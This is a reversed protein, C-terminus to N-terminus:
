DADDNSRDADKEGEKCQGQFADRRDPATSRVEKTTSISPDKQPKERWAPACRGSIEASAFDSSPALM